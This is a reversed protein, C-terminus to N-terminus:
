KSFSLEKKKKKKRKKALSKNEVQEWIASQDSPCVSMPERSVWAAASEM